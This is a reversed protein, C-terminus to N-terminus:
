RACLTATRKANTKTPRFAAKKVALAPQIGPELLNRGNANKSYMTLWCLAGLVNLASAIWFYMDSDGTLRYLWPFANASAFSGFSGAMNMAASAGGSNKRAIDICYAWSPSITMEVGFTALAFAAIAMGPSDLVTVSFVGCAALLFGAAAPVRRSWAKHRSRYLSDVIFGSVWNAMAGSLLPVMSYRAAQAPALSYRQVLYPFMWSICIFFTFNGIFYQAMAKAMAGSRLVSDLRAPAATEPESVARGGPSDRFWLLWCLAWTGGPVGLLYFATRWGHADLLWQSFPFAVAGGVLAGSFLVGNAIGHMGPPLWNYIVRASGPFAGAEAAGFLFRVVLLSGLGSAAGTLVTFVSWLTVFITLALRPGIRDALWGSPIQAVAYGLAFASFVAGMATESLSLAAAMSTKASSIAARDIYLVLSLAFLAALVALRKWTESTM